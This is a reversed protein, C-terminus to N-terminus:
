SAGQLHSVDVGGNWWRDDDWCLRVIAGNPIPLGARWAFFRRMMDKSAAEYPYVAVLLVARIFQEHTFVVGHGSQERAWRLFSRAREYLAAFSEAGAGDWYNPDLRSWYEDVLPQRDLSNMGVCREAALYTFEHVELEITSAQPFRALLPAATQRARLYSSLGIWTPAEHCVAAVANSQVQGQPTLAIAAFDSTVSGANAESEGHRVLWLMQAHHDKKM